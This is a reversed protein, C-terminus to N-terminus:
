VREENMKEFLDFPYYIEGRVEILKPIRNGRLRLPVDRVTRINPTVDEGVAGSGRTAGRVLVGDEFTLSVAAGDIKLEASYGAARIEDGAIRVLRDEWEQLQEDTFANALSLMPVAHTYKPLATVPASGIRQTPSDPTRLEPHAEELAKLEHFLKDYEADSITPRDLVFYDYSAKELIARIETARDAVSATM